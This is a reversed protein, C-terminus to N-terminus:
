AAGEAKPARRLFGYLDFRIDLYSTVQNTGPVRYGTQKWIQLDDLFLIPSGAELEHLVPAFEDLNCRLRVKITVREYLEKESSRAYQNMIIQCSNADRAHNQVVQKLRQTLGAAAADFDGEPLFGPNSAEFARVEALQKEIAPRAAATARFDRERERLERMESGIELHRATFWWHVGLLYGLLVAILLLVVALFRGREASPLLQM